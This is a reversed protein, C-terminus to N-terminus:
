LFEGFKRLFDCRAGLTWAGSPTVKAYRMGDLREIGSSRRHAAPIAVNPIPQLWCCMLAVGGGGAVM